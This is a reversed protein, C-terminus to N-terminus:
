TNGVLVKRIDETHRYIVLTNRTILLLEVAIPLDFVTFLLVFCLYEIELRRM